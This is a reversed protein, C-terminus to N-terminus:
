EVCDAPVAVVQGLLRERQIGQDCDMDRGEIMILGSDVLRPEHRQPM